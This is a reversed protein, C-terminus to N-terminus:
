FNLFFLVPILFFCSSSIPSNNLPSAESSFLAPHPIETKNCPALYGLNGKTSNNAPGVLDEGLCLHPNGGLKLKGGMRGVFGASFPIRGQLANNELNIERASMELRKFQDPLEGELSNDNLALYSLRELFLGMSQPINGVLGVGSLGLGLLAGLKKWVEPIRGGLHRNGSLYVEKLSTMEGMATPVGGTLRNYSLDLFELRKLMALESPLPGVLRNSSLDLKVLQVLRGFEVPIRGGLRNGSLDLIKLTTSCGGISTPIDGRLRNRSLLLQELNRLKGIEIPISGSVGTGTVVFRRIHPLDGISIGIRGVLSPNKIFVLEELSDPLNWPTTPLPAKSDTFCNYFFLKRLFPFSSAYSLLLPAVTANPGCPPNPSFDSVYGFNLEVIHPDGADFLDCVLGHPGSLCLDDPYLSRWAVDSNISELALYAAEEEAPPLRVPPMEAAEEFASSPILLLLVLLSSLHLGM